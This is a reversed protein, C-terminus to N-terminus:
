TPVLRQSCALEPPRTAPAMLGRAAAWAARDGRAARALENSLVAAYFAASQVPGHRRSFYRLRNLALMTRLRPSTMADGGTHTM